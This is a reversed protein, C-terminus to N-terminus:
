DRARPTFSKVWDRGTVTLAYGKGFDSARVESSVARPGPRLFGKQVLDWAADMLLRDIFVAGHVEHGPAPPANRIEEHVWPLFLDYDHSHRQMPGIPDRLTEWIFERLFDETEDLNRLLLGRTSLLM